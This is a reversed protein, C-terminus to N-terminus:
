PAAGASVLGEEMVGTVASDLSQVPEGQDVITVATAGLNKNKEITTGSEVSSNNESSSRLVAIEALLAAERQLLAARELM